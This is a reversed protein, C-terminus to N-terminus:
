EPLYKLLQEAVRHETLRKNRSQIEPGDEIRKRRLLMGPPYDPETNDDLRKVRLLNPTSDGVHEDDLSRRLRRTSPPPLRQPMETESMASLVRTVLYRLMEEDMTKGNGSHDDLQLRPAPGEYGGNQRYRSQLVQAMQNRLVQPNIPVSSVSTEDYDPYAGQFGDDAMLPGKLSQLQQEAYGQGQNIQNWMQLLNALYMAEKDRRQGEEVLQQLSINDQTPEVRHGPGMRELAQALLEENLYSALHAAMAQSIEPYLPEIPEPPLYSMIDAEYPNSVPISRRFRRPIGDQSSSRFPKGSTELVSLCVTVAMLLVFPGMM